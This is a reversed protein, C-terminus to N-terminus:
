LLGQDLPRKLPTKLQCNRKINQIINMIDTHKINLIKSIENCKKGEERLKKIKEMTEPNFGIKLHNQYMDLFVLYKDFKRELCIINDKYLWDCILKVDSYSSFSFGYTNKGENGAHYCHTEIAFKEKFKLLIVELLEKTGIYSCYFKKKKKNIYITGDGDWLGRIFHKDLNPNLWNPYTLLFTKNPMCGLEIMRNFLKKSYIDLICFNGNIKIRSDGYFLYSLKELLKIESDNAKLSIKLTNKCINGDSWMLGLFYAKEETDINDLWSTNLFYKRKNEEAPRVIINNRKLTKFILGDSCKFKEGIKKYDVGALYYNIINEDKIKDKINTPFYLNNNRLIRRILFKKVNLIKAINPVTLNQKFHNICQEELEKSIKSIKCESNTRPKLNFFNLIKIISKSNIGLENAVQKYSLGNQYLEAVKKKTEITIKSM